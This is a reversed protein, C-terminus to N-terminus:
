WDGARIEDGRREAETEAACVRCSENHCQLHAPGDLDPCDVCEDDHVPCTDGECIVCRTRDECDPPGNDSDTPCPDADHPDSPEPADPDGPLYRDRDWLRTSM